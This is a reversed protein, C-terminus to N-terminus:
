QGVLDEAPPLRSCIPSPEEIVEKFRILSGDVWRGLVGLYDTVYQVFSAPDYHVVTIIRTGSMPLPEFTMAGWNKPGSRSSWAIREDPELATIELQWVTEIAAIEARWYLHRDDLRKVERLGRVFRPLEEYRTWQEFATSVPVDVDISKIVTSM